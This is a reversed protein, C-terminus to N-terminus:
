NKKFKAFMAQLDKVSPAVAGTPVGGYKNGETKSAKKIANQCDRLITSQEFVNFISDLAAAKQPVKLAKWDAINAKIISNLSMESYKNKIETKRSEIAVTTKGAAIKQKKRFEKYQKQAEIYKKHNEKYESLEKKYAAKDKPTADESPPPPPPPPPPPVFNQDKPM